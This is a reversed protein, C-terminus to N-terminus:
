RNLGLRRLPAEMFPSAILVGIYLGTAHLGNLAASHGEQEFYCLHGSPADRAFVQYVSLVFSFSFHFRTMPRNEKDTIRRQDYM